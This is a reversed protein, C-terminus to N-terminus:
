WSSATPWSSCQPSRTTSMNLCAIRQLPHLRRSAILANNHSFVELSGGSWRLVQYLRETLNIAAMGRFAAPEMSCYMSRWGQRHILFGTVVDEMAINYVWGVDRGWSTGDEYACTMLTAIINCLGEDVLVPTISREQISGDLISNLFPTSNGLEAAKDVLKINEARYRPPEMGYLAVRRFMTGTSFCTPGQLGNLSLMTGDFFVRNHNSYRDLYIADNPDEYKYGPNQNCSLIELNVTTVSYKLGGRYIPMELLYNQNKSNNSNLCEIYLLTHCCRVAHAYVVNWQALLEKIIFILELAIQVIGVHQGRRHNDAQEIWKGLWKTGDAMWTAHVGDDGKNYADPRRRITTSLSDIRVKFKGYERRVRRHDSMFEGAMGGVYPRTKMGFYNEPSRPEVCHKRCSLVWLAAFSAVSRYPHLISGKVKMTRFLLPRNGDGASTGSMDGEDAAVWVDDKAVPAEVRLAM